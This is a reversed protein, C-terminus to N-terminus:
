HPGYANVSVKRSQNFASIAQFACQCACSAVVTRLASIRAAAPTRLRTLRYSRLPVPNNRLPAAFVMYASPHIIDV